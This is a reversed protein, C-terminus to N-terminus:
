SCNLAMNIHGDASCKVPIGGMMSDCLRSVTRVAQSELHSLRVRM